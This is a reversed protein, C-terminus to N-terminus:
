TGEIARLHCSGPDEKLKKRNAESSAGRYRSSIVANRARKKLTRQEKNKMAILEATMTPVITAFFKELKAHDYTAM